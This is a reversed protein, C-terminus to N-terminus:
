RLWECSHKNVSQFHQLTQYIVDFTPRERVIPNCCATSLRQLLISLNGHIGLHLIEMTTNSNNNNNSSNTTTDFTSNISTQTSFNGRRSVSEPTSLVSKLEALDQTSIPSEKVDSRTGLVPLTNPDARQWLDEILCGFARVELLELRLSEESTTTPTCTTTPSTTTTNSSNSPKFSAAGFDTLLTHGTSQHVLINHAYLDGHMIGSTNCQTSAHLHTCASAISLLIHFIREYSFQVGEVFTDRTCTDFSPPNGLIQYSAPSSDLLPLM